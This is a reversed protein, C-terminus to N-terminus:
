CGGRDLAVCSFFIFSSFSPKNTPFRSCGIRAFIRGRLSKKRGTHGAVFSCHGKEGLFAGMSYSRQSSWLRQVGEKVYISNYLVAFITRHFQAFIGILVVNTTRSSDTDHKKMVKKDSKYQKTWMTIKNTLTPKITHKRRPYNNEKGKEGGAGYCLVEMKKAPPPPPSVQHSNLLLFWAYESLLM